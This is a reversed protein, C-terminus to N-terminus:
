ITKVENIIIKVGRKLRFNNMYAIKIKSDDEKNIEFCESCMGLNKDRKVSEKEEGCLSCKEFISPKFTNIVRDTLNNIISDTDFNNFDFGGFKKSKHFSDKETKNLFSLFDESSEKVEDGHMSLFSSDIITNPKDFPHYSIVISYDKIIYTRGLEQLEYVDKPLKCWIPINIRELILNNHFNLVYSNITNDYSDSKFGRCKATCTTSNFSMLPCYNCTNMRAVVPKKELNFSKLIRIYKSM